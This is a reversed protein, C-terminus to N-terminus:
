KVMIRKIAIVVIVLILLLWIWWPNKKPKRSLRNPPTPKQHNQNM